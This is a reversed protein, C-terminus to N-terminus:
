LYEEPERPRASPMYFGSGDELFLGVTMELCNPFLRGGFDDRDVHQEFRDEQGGEEGRAGEGVLTRREWVVVDAYRVSM